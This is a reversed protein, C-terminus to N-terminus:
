LWKSESQRDRGGTWHIELVKRHVSLKAVDLDFTTLQFFGRFMKVDTDHSINSCKARCTSGTIPNVCGPDVGNLSLVMTKGFSTSGGKQHFLLEVVKLDPDPKGSGSQSM